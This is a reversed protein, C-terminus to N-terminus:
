KHQILYKVGEFVFAPFHILGLLVNIYEQEKHSKNAAKIDLWEKDRCKM